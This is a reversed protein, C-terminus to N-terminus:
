KIVKDNSQGPDKSDRLEEYHNFVGMVWAVVEPARQNALLCRECPEDYRTYEEAEVKFGKHPDKSCSWVAFGCTQCVKFCITYGNDVDQENCKRAIRELRELLKTTTM